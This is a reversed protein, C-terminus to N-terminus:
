GNYNVNLQIFASLAAERDKMMTQVHPRADMLQMYETVNPLFRELMNEGYIKLTTQKIMVFHVYAACDAATFSPGLIYPSFHSIRAIADLGIVLKELFLIQKGLLILKLKNYYNSVGFGCLTLMPM